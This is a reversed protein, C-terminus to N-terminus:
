PRMNCNDPKQTLFHASKHDLFNENGIATFDGDANDAGAGFHADLRDGDVRIGIAVRQVDFLGIFGVVNAGIRDGAVQVGMVDHIQGHSGAAVGQVGAIAKQRFIRFQRLDAGAAADLEDTRCRGDDALHAVLDFRAVGHYGGADRDNRAAVAIKLGHFLRDPQGIFDAVRDHELCGIAAAPAADAAAVAFFLHQGIVIAHNGFGALREALRLQKEFLAHDVRAVDFDLHQRIALAVDDM